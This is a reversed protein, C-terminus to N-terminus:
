QRRPLPRETFCIAMDIQRESGDLRIEVDKLQVPYILKLMSMRRLSRLLKQRTFLDGENMLSGMRARVLADRTHTLGLFEVRRVTFQNRQAENMLNDRETKPQACAAEQGFTTSSCSLFLATLLLLKM